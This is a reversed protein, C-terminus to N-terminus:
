GATSPSSSRMTNAVKQLALAFDELFDATGEMTGFTVRTVVGEKASFAVFGDSPFSVSSCASEEDFEHAVANRMVRIVQYMNPKEPCKPGSCSIDYMGPGKMSEIWLPEDMSRAYFLTVHLISLTTQLRMFPLWNNRVAKDLSWGRSNFHGEVLDMATKDGKAVMQDCYQLFRWINLTLVLTDAQERATM